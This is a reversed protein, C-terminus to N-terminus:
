KTRDSLLEKFADVLTPAAAPGVSNIEGYQAETRGYAFPPVEDWESRPIIYGIEDNALGFVMKFEASLLGRLPEERPAGPFDAGPDPPEQIGGLVLEPYIEGPVGLIEADGLRIYSIETKLDQGRPLPVPVRHFWFLGTAADPAGQTYLPRELVGLAFALRFLKNALPVFVPRSKFVLSSTASPKATKLAELARAAAREGIARAHEFTEGPIEHGMADELAVALPTMLGGISGSVFVCTGGLVAEVKDVLYHPYDATIETNKGGLAEPHSSWNVLTGLTAGDVAVARAVVLEDDIVQPLRGDAILGPTRAKAFFLRAPRTGALAEAAADTIAQRLRAMYAADSGSKITSPGWLGMTDPGEHNHTSTVVLTAGPARAAFLARTKQVDSLFLGIVDVACVVLRTKADSAALCRAYLDDHLATAKRDHDFGALYVLGGNLSPTVVRRAFGIQLDDTRADVAVAVLVALM